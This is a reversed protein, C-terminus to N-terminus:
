LCKYPRLSSWCNIGCWHTKKWRPNEKPKGCKYCLTTDIVKYLPKKFEPLEIKKPKILKEM